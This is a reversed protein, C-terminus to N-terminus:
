ARVGTARPGHPRAPGPAGPQPHAGALGPRAAALATRVRAELAHAPMERPHRRYGRWMLELLYRRATMGCRYQGVHVLEHALMALGEVTGTDCADPRFYITRGRVLGLVDRFPAMYWPLGRTVIRARELDVAPIHPQLAAKEADSLPRGPRPISRARTPATSEPSM